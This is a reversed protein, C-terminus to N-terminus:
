SVSEIKDCIKDFLGYDFLLLQKIKGVLIM